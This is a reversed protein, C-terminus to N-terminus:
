KEAIKKGMQIFLDGLMEYSIQSNSVNEIREDLTKELNTIRTNVDLSVDDITKGLEQRVEEILELLENRKNEIDEKLTEFESEYAQIKDGFILNKITELKSASDDGNRAHLEFIPKEKNSPM